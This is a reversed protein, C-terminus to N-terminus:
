CILRDQDFRFSRREHAAFLPKLNCVALTSTPELHRALRGLFKVGQARAYADQM